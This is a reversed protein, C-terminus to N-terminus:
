ELVERRHTLSEIRDLRPSFGIGPASPVRITGVYQGRRDIVQVGSATAVYLRGESDLAM